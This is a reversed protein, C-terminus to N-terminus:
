NNLTIKTFPHFYRYGDKEGEWIEGNLYWVFDKQSIRVGHLGNLREKTTNTSWGADSIQIEGPNDTYKRAITNGHLRMEIRGEEPFVVVEDNGKRFKRGNEFAECVESTIKRM